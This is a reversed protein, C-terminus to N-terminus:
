LSGVAVLSGERALGAEVLDDAVHFGFWVIRSM